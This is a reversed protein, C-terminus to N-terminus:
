LGFLCGKASGSRHCFIKCHEGAPVPQSSDDQGREDRSPAPSNPARANTIHMFPQRCMIAVAQPIM